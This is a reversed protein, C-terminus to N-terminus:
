SSRPVATVCSARVTTRFPRLKTSSPRLRFRMRTAAPRAAAARRFQNGICVAQRRRDADSEMGRQSQRVTWSGTRIGCLSRGNLVPLGARHLTFNRAGM